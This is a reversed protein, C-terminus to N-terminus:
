LEGDAPLARVKSVRKNANVIGQKKNSQGAPWAPGM